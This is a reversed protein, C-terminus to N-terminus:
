LFKIIVPIITAFMGVILSTHKISKGLVRRIAERNSDNQALASFATALKGLDGKMENHETKYREFEKIIGKGGNGFLEKDMRKIISENKCHDM